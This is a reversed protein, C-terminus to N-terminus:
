SVWHINQLESFTHLAYVGYDRGLGSLKTGGFCGGINRDTTNWSIGGSELRDAARMARSADSTFVYDHLGYKTGNALSIAEDEDDFPMAVVVPGFFENQVAPNDASQPLLLAPNCYFGKDPVADRSEGFAFEAGAQVGDGLLAEVRDRQAASILPTLELIPTSPNVTVQSAAKALTDVVEDFLSRHILARTPAICIQGAHISWTTAISNVATTVDADEFIMAAGKGGLELLTRKLDRSANAAVQLGVEVSGTFGVMDVDPSAVLEVGTVPGSGTVLNLVGPPFGADHFCRVLETLSLPDQPPAKLVVTNGMALAAAVRAIVAPPVNYSGILAVVGVPRRRVLANVLHQGGLVPRIPEDHVQAAAYAYDVFRSVFADFAKGLAAASAGTEDLFVPLIQAARETMVKAVALMAASRDRPTLGSWRPFARKAAAIAAQADAATGEVAEAIVREDRPALVPYTSAGSVWQGDVYLQYTDAKSEQNVM